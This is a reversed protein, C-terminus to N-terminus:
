TRSFVTSPTGSAKSNTPTRPPSAIATPTQKKGTSSSDPTAPEATVISSPKPVSKMETSADDKMSLASPDTDGGFGPPANSAHTDDGEYGAERQAVLQAPTLGENLNKVYANMKLVDPSSFRCSDKGGFDLNGGYWEPIQDMDIFETLGTLTESQAFIKVKRQTSEAVLPKVMKWIMSFWIPANVVCIVFSREPYHQNAWGVTTRLIEKSEGTLTSMTVNALDLIAVSKAMPDPDIYKWQYESVFLWHRTLEAFGIGRAKLQVSDFDGPREYFVLHGQKGRGCVYQPCYNKIIFFYPQPENLIDNIGETERWHRTIDWRRQAEKLDGDCGNIFRQPIEEDPNNVVPDDPSTYAHSLIILIYSQKFAAAETTPFKVITEVINRVALGISIVFLLSTNVTLYRLTNIGIVLMMISVLLNIAVRPDDTLNKLQWNKNREATSIEDGGPNDTNDKYIICRLSSPLAVDKIVLDFERPEYTRRQFIDPTISAIGSNSLSIILEDGEKVDPICIMHKWEPQRAIVTETGSIVKKKSQDKKINSKLSVLLVDVEQEDEPELAQGRSAKLQGSSYNKVSSRIASVWEGCIDKSTARFLRKVHDTTQLEFQLSDENEDLVRISLVDSLAIKGREIGFLDQNEERLFWHIAEQTLVVFRRAYIGKWPNKKDLYGTYLVGLNKSHENSPLTAAQKHGVMSAQKELM